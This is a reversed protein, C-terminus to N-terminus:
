WGRLFKSLSLGRARQAVSAGGRLLFNLVKSACPVFLVNDSWVHVNVQNHRKKEDKLPVILFRKATERPYLLKM